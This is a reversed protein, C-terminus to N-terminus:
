VAPYADPLRPHRVTSRAPPGKTTLCYDRDTKSMVLFLKAAKVAAQKRADWYEALSMVQGDTNAKYARSIVGLELYKQMFAVFDSEDTGTTLATPQKLFIFLLNGDVDIGSSAGADTDADGEGSTADQWTISPLADLFLFSDTKDDRWYKQPEGARTRWSPDNGTIEKKTSPDVPKRDYAVLMSKDWGSPAPIPPPDSPTATAWAEWPHTCRDGEVTIGSGGVLSQPEWAHTYAVDGSDYYPLALWVAGSSHSTFAWEWDHTYSHQFEPPLKVVQVGVLQGILSFWDRQEDNFLGLLMTDSWIAGNPDRLYRRIRALQETWTM